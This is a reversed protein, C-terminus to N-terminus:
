PEYCWPCRGTHGCENCGNKTDHCYQCIHTDYCHQCKYKVRWEAPLLVEPRGNHESPLWHLKM